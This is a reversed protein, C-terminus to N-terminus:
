RDEEEEVEEEDEGEVDEPDGHNLVVDVRGASSLTLMRRRFGEHAVSVQVRCGNGVCLNKLLFEGRDDSTAVIRETSSPLEVAIGGNASYDDLEDVRFALVGHVPGHARLMLTVVIQAGAVLAGREDKVVGRIEGSAAPLVIRLRETDAGANMRFEGPEVEMSYAGDADTTASFGSRDKEDLMPGTRKAHVEANALPAGTLVDTVLGRITGPLAAAEKPAPAIPVGPNKWGAPEAELDSRSTETGTGSPGAERTREDGDARRRTMWAVLLALLILALAIVANRNKM